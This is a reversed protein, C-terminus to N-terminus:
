ACHLFWAANGRARMIVSESLYDRSLIRELMGDEVGRGRSGRHIAEEGAKDGDGEKGLMALDSYVRASYDAELRCERSSDEFRLQRYQVGDTTSAM